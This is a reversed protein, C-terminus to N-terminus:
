ERAAGAAPQVEVRDVRVGQDAPEGVRCWTPAEISVEIARGPMPRARVAYPAIERTLRFHQPAAGTARVTVEPSPLPSPFPSGM